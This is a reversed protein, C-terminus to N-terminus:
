ETLLKELRLKTIKAQEAAAIHLEAQAVNNMRDTLIALMEEASKGTACVIFLWGFKQEYEANLEAMRLATNASAVDMGRQEAASWKAAARQGIKPHASFAELWDALTLGNWVEDATALLADKDQFPQRQLMRDVWAMSGCCRTLSERDLEGPKM